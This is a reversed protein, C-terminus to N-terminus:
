AARHSLLITTLHYEYSQKVMAESTQGHNGMTQNHGVM